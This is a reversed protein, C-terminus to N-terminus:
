IVLLPVASDYIVTRNKTQALVNIRIEMFVLPICSNGKEWLKALMNKLINNIISQPLLIEIYNKNANKWQLVHYM